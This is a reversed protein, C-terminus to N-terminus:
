RRLLSREIQVSRHHADATWIQRFSCGTQRDGCDAFSWELHPFENRRSTTPMIEAASSRPWISDQGKEIARRRQAMEDIVPDHITGFLPAKGDRVVQQGGVFVDTEGSAPPM